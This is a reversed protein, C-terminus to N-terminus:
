KIEINATCGLWIDIRGGVGDQIRSCTAPCVTIKSPAANDDYYWGDGAACDSLLLRRPITEGASGAASYDVRVKVPDVTGADTTPMQYECGLSTGRIANLAVIFEQGVDGSEILVPAGTGGQTAITELTSQGLAPLGPFGIAFVAIGAAYAQAAITGLPTEADADTPLCQGEPKGDTVMVVVCKRDPQESRRATCAAFAGQLAAVTPTYGGSKLSLVDFRLDSSPLTVWPMRPTAYATPDCTEVEPDDAVPLPFQQIAAGIGVSAPDGLFKFIGVQLAAMKGDNAMSGSTDLMFYIDVPVQKADLATAACAADPDLPGTEPAADPLLWGGGTGGAAVLGGAGAGVAGQGAAGGGGGNGGFVAPPAAPQESDSSCGGFALPLLLSCGLFRRGRECLM